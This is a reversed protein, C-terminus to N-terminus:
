QSSGNILAAKEAGLLQKLRYLNSLFTRRWQRKPRSPSAGDIMGVKRYLDIREGRTRACANPALNSLYRLQLCNRCALEARNVYLSQFNGEHARPCKLLPRVRGGLCPVTVIDALWTRGGLHVALRTESVVAVTREDGDVLLVRPDGSAKVARLLKPLNLEFTSELVPVRGSGAKAM